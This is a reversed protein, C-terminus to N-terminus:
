APEGKLHAIRLAAPPHSDYFASHLPDPTLTSANDRYLKVLASALADASVQDAAFDDAEYEHRRSLMSSLPTLPFTFAPIVMFFLVLALANSQSTLGLGQYFWPAGILQGLIFLFGLSLVFTLAIRKTVHKKRFHGLEHALVAEIEDHELRELLTDFFVIRKSAGFGTFYANGHSSRTSGDMVFIGQSKFGCRALLTDIRQSLEEDQLPQFKNFLPAILTPYLAVLLVSFGSWLLWVWLWWLSGMMSMLWLVLLLLPAGILVGLLSRKILDLLFLRPTMTNFGFRAEIGFTSALSFPLTVVGSILSVSGILILGRLIDAEVLSASFHWLQQLGGGLTLILILAADAVANVMGLRTKAVTYDAARQHADLPISDAFGAPVHQRHSLIHHTHRRALWLKLALSAGLALLFAYTFADTM